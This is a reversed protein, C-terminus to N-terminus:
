SRQHICQNQRHFGCSSRSLSRTCDSVFACQHSSRSILNEDILSLTHTHTPHTFNLFLIHPHTHQTVLDQDYYLHHKMFYILGPFVGASGSTPATVVKRGDANEESAAVTYANLFALFGDAKFSDHKAQEFMHAAKRELGILGPLKGRRRLGREVCDEMTQIITHLSAFVDERKAGTLAIENRIMLEALDLNTQLHQRFQTWTAYPYEPLSTRTDDVPCGKKQM